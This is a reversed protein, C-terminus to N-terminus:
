HALARVADASSTATSEHLERGVYALLRRHAADGPDSPLEPGFFGPGRFPDIGGMAIMLDLLETAISEDVLEVHHTAVALDLGHVVLETLHIVAAMSAPLTAFSLAVEGDLAGPATWAADDITAASRYSAAPDAGLWDREPDEEAPPGGLMAAFVNMGGVLHNAVDRVTWDACPTPDDWQDSRIAEVITGTAGLAKQIQHVINNSM